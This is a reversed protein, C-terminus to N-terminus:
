IWPSVRGDKEGFVWEVACTNEATLLAWERFHGGKKKFIGLKIKAIKSNHCWRKEGSPGTYEAGVMCDTSVSIEGELGIGRGEGWFKWHGLAVDSRNRIISFFSNLPYFRSRFRLVFITIPPSQYPGLPIQASLGEFIAEEELFANCHSWVWKSAYQTGWLHSQQGPADQFEYLDGGVKVRGSVRLDPHVSQVKTKPLPGHYMWNYPFFAYGPAKDQWSLDWSIKEEGNSRISGRGGRSDLRAGGLSLSFPNSQALLPPLATEGSGEFFFSEKFSRKRDLPNEKKQDVVFAWLDTQAKGQRPVLLTYRIWLSREKEPDNFKLFYVEYHGRKMGDWKLQNNRQSM